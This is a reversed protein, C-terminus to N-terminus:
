DDQGHYRHSKFRWQGKLLMRAASPHWLGTHCAEFVKRCNRIGYVCISCQFTIKSKRRHILTRYISTKCANLSRDMIRLGHRGAATRYPVLVPMLVRIRLTCVLGTYM